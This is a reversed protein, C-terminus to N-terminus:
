IGSIGTVSVKCGLYKVCKIFQRLTIECQGSELRSYQAQSIKLHEALQKQKINKRHRLFELVIPPDFTTM